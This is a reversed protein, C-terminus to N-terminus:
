INSDWVGIYNDKIEYIREFGMNKYLKKISKSNHNWTLRKKYPNIGDNDLFLFDILKYLKEPFYSGIKVFIRIFWTNAKIDKPKVAIPECIIVKKAYIKANEILAFHSPNIHHLIDCLVIVDVKDKPYEHFNFLDRQKINIHKLQSKGRIWDKKLKHLFKPNIDWGEYNNSPHLFRTLFGTGCALDLIHKNKGILKSISLYKRKIDYIKISLFNYVRGSRYLLSRFGQLASKFPM